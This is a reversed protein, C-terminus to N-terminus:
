TTEGSKYIADIYLQWASRGKDVYNDFSGLNMYANWAKSWALDEDFEIRKWGAISVRYMMRNDHEVSEQMYRIGAVKCLAQIEEKTM